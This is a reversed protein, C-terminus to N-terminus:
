GNPDVRDHRADARQSPSQRPAILRGAPLVSPTIINRVSNAVHSKVGTAPIRPTADAVASLEAHVGSV